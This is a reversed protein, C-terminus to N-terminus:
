WFRWRGSKVKVRDVDRRVDVAVAEAGLAVGGDATGAAEVAVVGAFEATDELVARLCEGAAKACHAGAGAAVLLQTQWVLPRRAVRKKMVTIWRAMFSEHQLRSLSATTAACRCQWSILLRGTFFCVTANAMIVANNSVAQPPSSLVFVAQRGIRVAVGVAAIVAIVIGTATVVAVTVDDGVTAIAGVAAVQLRQVAVVEIGQVNVAFAQRRALDADDGAAHRM